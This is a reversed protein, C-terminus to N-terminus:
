KLALTSCYASVEGSRWGNNLGTETCHNYSKFPVGGPGINRCGTYASAGASWSCGVWPRDGSRFSTMCGGICFVSTAASHPSPSATSRATAHQQPWHQAAVHRPADVSIGPLPSPQSWAPGSSGCLLSAISLVTVAVNTVFLSLGKM